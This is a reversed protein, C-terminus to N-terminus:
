ARSEASYRDTVSQLTPSPRGLLYALAERHWADSVTEVGAVQEGGTALEGLRRLAAYFPARRKRFEHDYALLAALIDTRQVEPLHALFNKIWTVVFQRHFAEDPLFRELGVEHLELDNIKTTKWGLVIDPVVYLEYELEFALFGLLGRRPLDGVIEWQEEARQKIEVIPDRGTLREIARRMIEAHAGDDGIQRTLLIQLAPDKVVGIGLATSEFIFVDLAAITTFYDAIREKEQETAPPRVVPTVGALAPTYEEILRDLLHREFRLNWAPYDISM